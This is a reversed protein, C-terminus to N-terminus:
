DPTLISTESLNYRTGDGSSTWFLNCNWSFTILTMFQCFFSSTSHKLISSIDVCSSFRLSLVIQIHPPMLAFECFPCRCILIEMVLSLFCKIIIILIVLDSKLSKTKYSVVLSAEPAHNTDVPFFWKLDPLVLAILNLDKELIM